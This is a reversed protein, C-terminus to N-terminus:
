FKFISNSVVNCVTNMDFAYRFKLFLNASGVFGKNTKNWYFFFRVYQVTKVGSKLVEGVM